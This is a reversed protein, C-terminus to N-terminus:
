SVPSQDTRLHSPYTKLEVFDAINDSAGLSETVGASTTDPTEGIVITVIDFHLGNLPNYLHTM